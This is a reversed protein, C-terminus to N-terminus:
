EGFSKMLENDLVDAISTGDGDFTGAFAFDRDPTHEADYAVLAEQLVRAQSVQLRDSLGRLTDADEETFYVSTKRKKKENM